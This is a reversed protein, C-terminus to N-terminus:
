GLYIFVRQEIESVVKACFLLPCSVHAVGLYFRQVSQKIVCIEDASM